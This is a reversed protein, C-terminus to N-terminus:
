EDSRLAHRRGAQFGVDYGIEHGIVASTLRNYGTWMIQNGPDPDHKRDRYGGLHAVLATADGLRRPEALGHKRAYDRLFGLEADTFMLEPDCDPVQRGLLTMLMIRWAIVANIAVARQLRDATRFLLHEVRCGSKLVRFWDEIRWRQLYYGVIDGAERATGVERTTLLYWQVPAEDEPPDIEVIHVGSVTVPEGGPITAPLVVRRFRLECQAVRKQRMPRATKRSSKPRATLGDIEVAICGDAAGGGLTEFLKPRAEGLVRDHQARVLLGVRPNKRQADFLEYFDAERDCVSLVRTKGGVERVAAGIDAFAALWRESKKRKEAEPRRKVAGDFGLRLVGLPLGNETVALTAHLHLGLTKASTQNRGIVELGDCGPRTAFNLDTGDQIALVTRQGRIRCVTRERHPALINEVSVASEAPKEVLRYFANIATSDSDPSANIKHGPYAALLGASKVLRASLRRDGLPAGGFENEAWESASLGAGPELVPRLEVHPVGLERRWRRDLPFMFVTKVTKARRRERDQRGRGATRGVCLFNAARLCTGAYGEDAFSEVLLLRFGYRAEFDRPLRRLIRGLLHSALHPCRVSPRVLFRSLCLIRDLQGSRQGHTWAIWRDRAAVKLAAASFGAAGLWGHASGVLYRLQRGAFTTMGHPHERAILTNWLARDATTTVPVIAIDEVQSLVAPVEVPDPVPADLLRPTIDVGGSKSAPLVIDPYRAALTALAHLCGTVQPRGMADIFSFEACVRRGLARRSDFHEQALIASVRARAAEDRLTHSIRSQAM